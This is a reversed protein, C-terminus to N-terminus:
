SRHKLLSSFNERNIELNKSMKSYKMMLRTTRYYIGHIIFVLRGNALRLDDFYIEVSFFGFSIWKSEFM